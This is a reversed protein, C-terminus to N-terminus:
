AASAGKPAASEAIAALVDTIRYPKAVWAAVADVNEAAGAVDGSLFISAVGWRASLERALDPGSGAGELNIDLLAIDVAHLGALVSAAEATAVPGIVAHGAEALGDVLMQATDPEDEVVLVTLPATLPWVAEPADPAEDAGGRRKVLVDRLRGWLAAPESAEVRDLDFIRALSRLEDLDRGALGQGPTSLLSDYRGVLHQLGDAASTATPIHAHSGDM